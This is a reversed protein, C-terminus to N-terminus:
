KVKTGIAITDFACTTPWRIINKILYKFISKEESSTVGPIIRRCGPNELTEFKCLDVKLGAEKYLAKMGAPYIRWCDVPAQHFTWSVPALIIVRGGVKCVRALEKIWVWIKKVHEIVQGSLVIDFTNDSIPFKYENEAIYTVNESKVIDLTEWVIADNDVAKKYTSPFADAGIELIKMNSKFFLKAYKEFLLRSNLHM